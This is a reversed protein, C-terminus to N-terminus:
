RAEMNKVPNIQPQAANYVEAAKKAFEGEAHLSIPKEHTFSANLEQISRQQSLEEQIEWEEYGADRMRAVFEDETKSGYTM